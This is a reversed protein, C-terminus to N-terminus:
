KKKAHEAVVHAVCATVRKGTAIDLFENPGHANSHPGLVGTILFQTRPFKESLMGMFPITGGVGMYMADRGFFTRSASQIAAELWPATSPANWGGMSSEVEFEVKAGYPPDSELAQKVAAAAAQADVGAPLRFSLKLATFPRLVNGANQLSPIGEAGTVSLTPRWTSNLLLEYPDDSMPRTRGAFPMKGHVSKGLAQAAARAQQLRDEPIKCWLADILKGTEASEVRELLRRAIRLSSPVIGSAMGSHVGETLVDVRLTGVLNGRLSTTCWFQDYNGCEADLCVVLSPEGIRDALADIYAPLDPSGSEESGEILIVSRVYPINQDALARLALLSGFVAYGDDAGGRGYLRGDRLVPKWAELGEVWGSFEPQKDMHGYLLVCDNSRGAPNGSAPVDIYLLPTLGPLRVIEIKMGPLANQECWTKMLEAARLMHGHQEWQPDFHVSKNPIRIYESLAPVISQDWVTDIYRTLREMDIGSNIGSNM